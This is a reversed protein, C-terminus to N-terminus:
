TRASAGTRWRAPWRTATSAREFIRRGAAVDANTVAAAKQNAVWKDFNEGSDVYVRLDPGYDDAHFAFDHPDGRSAHIGAQFHQTDPQQCFRARVACSPAGGCVARRRSWIVKLSGTGMCVFDDPSDIGVGTDAIRASAPMILSGAYLAVTALSLEREPVLEFLSRPCPLTGLYLRKRHSM